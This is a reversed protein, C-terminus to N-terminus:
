ALSVATVTVFRPRIREAAVPQVRRRAEGHLPTRRQVDLFVM